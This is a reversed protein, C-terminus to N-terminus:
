LRRARNSRYNLLAHGDVLANLAAADCHAPIGGGGFGIAM